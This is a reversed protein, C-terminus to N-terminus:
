YTFFYRSLVICIICSAIIFLVSAHATLLGRHHCSLTRFPVIVLWFMDILM